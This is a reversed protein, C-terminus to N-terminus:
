CKATILHFLQANRPRSIHSRVRRAQHEGLRKDIRDAKGVYVLNGKYHLGYVGLSSPPALADWESLLTPALVDFAEVLQAHIAIPIDLDFHSAHDM